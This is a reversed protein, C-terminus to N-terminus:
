EPVNEMEITDGASVATRCRTCAAGNLRVHGDEILRQIRRRSRDPCFRALCLDLRLGAFQGPVPFTLIENPPNPASM